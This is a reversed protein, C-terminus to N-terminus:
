KLVEGAVELGFTFGTTFAHHVVDRLQEQHVRNVLIQELSTVRPDDEVGKLMKYVREQEM